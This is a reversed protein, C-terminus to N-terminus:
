IRRRTASTLSLRAAPHTAASRTRAPTHTRTHVPITPNNLSQPLLSSALSTPPNHHTPTPTTWTQEKFRAPHLPPPRRALASHISTPDDYQQSIYCFAGSEISAYSVGRGQRSLSISPVKARDVVVVAFTFVAEQEQLYLYRRLPLIWLRDFGSFRWRRFSQRTSTYHPIRTTVPRELTAAKKGTPNEPRRM